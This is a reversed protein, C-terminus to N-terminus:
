SAVRDLWPAFHVVAWTLFAFGSGCALGRVFARERVDLLENDTLRHIRGGPLRAGSPVWAM